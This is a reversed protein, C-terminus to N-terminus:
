NKASQSSQSAGTFKALNIKGPLMGCRSISTLSHAKPYLALISGPAIRSQALLLCVM